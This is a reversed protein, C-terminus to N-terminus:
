RHQKVGGEEEQSLQTAEVEAESTIFGGINNTRKLYIM